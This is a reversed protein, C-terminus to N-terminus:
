TATSLLEEVEERSIGNTGQLKWDQQRKFSAFWFQVQDDAVIYVM